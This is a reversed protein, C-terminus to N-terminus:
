AVQKLALVRTIAAGDWVYRLQDAQVCRSLCKPRFVAFCTGGAHRVSDYVVGDAGSQRLPKAWTQSPAYDDPLYLEPSSKMQGTIDHLSATVKATLVRMDLEQPAQQTYALFQARHYRSEEIATRLDLGAYYVGFSGDSFRSGSKNLHTFAAMIYGVGAGFVCQQAPVLAIDGRENRLRENTRGELQYLAEFDEPNAVQEFISM